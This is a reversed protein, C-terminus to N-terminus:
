NLVPAKKKHALWEIARYYIDYFVDAELGQDSLCVSLMFLQDSQEIAPASVLAIRHRLRWLAPKLENLLGDIDRYTLRYKGQRLDILVGCGVLMQTIEAVNLFIQKVGGADIRGRAIVTVHDEGTLGWSFFKTEMDM